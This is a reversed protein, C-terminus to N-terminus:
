DTAELCLNHGAGIVEGDAALVIAGVPGDGESGAGALQRALDLALRMTPEYAAVYGFPVGGTQQDDNGHSPMSRGISPPASGSGGRWVRWCRTLSCTSTAPCRACSWRTSASIPWYPYTVLLYCRTLTKTMRCM